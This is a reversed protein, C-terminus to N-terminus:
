PQPSYLRNYAAYNALVRRVYLRPESLTIEEVFLDDDATAVSDLWIRANGPGANYGALAAYVDGDFMELATDLYYTGFKVNLYPKYIDGPVFDPWGMSGAIWVATDPIVQMLGQAAASSRAGPEFTSEQRILAFLLHPPIGQAAGEAEVLDGFWVPYILRQVFLPAALLGDPSLVAVRTAAVVSQRYLGLDRAYLALPYLAAPDDRFRQVVADLERLAESRLGAAAYADALAVGRDAALIAPLSATITVDAWGALWKEAFAQSGDDGPQPQFPLLAAAESLGAAGALEAARASYYSDAAEHQLPQWLAVAEAPQDQELLAKGAWFRAAHAYTSAPLTDLVRQWVAAAGAVDGLRYLCIGGRYLAESSATAAPYQDAVALYEAQASRCDGAREALRARELLADATAAQRYLDRADTRNGLRTHAVAMRVLVEARHPYAPYADLTAQWEALAESYSRATFYAEALLLHLDAPHDPHAAFYSRLLAAGEPLRSNGLLVRATTLTDVPQGAFTLAAVALGASSSSEDEAVALRYRAWADATSGAAALWNAARLQMEARYRPLQSSTIIQDLQAVAAATDGGIQALDALEEHAAFRVFNDDAHDLAAQFALVAAQQDGNQRLLRGIRLNILGALRNDRQLFARYATIAAAPNGLQELADGIWFDVQSPLQDVSNQQQAQTLAVYAETFAGEEWYCHGLRWRAEAAEAGAPDVEIRAAYLRRAAEFDGNHQLRRAEAM